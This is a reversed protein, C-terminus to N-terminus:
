SGPCGGISIRRLIRRASLVLKGARPSLDVAQTASQVAEAVRGGELLFAHALQYLLTARTEDTDVSSQFKSNASSGPQSRATIELARRYADRADELQGISELKQGAAYLMDVDEVTTAGLKSTFSLTGAPSGESGLNANIEAIASVAAFIATTIEEGAPEWCEAGGRSTKQVAKM